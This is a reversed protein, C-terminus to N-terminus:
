FLIEIKGSHTGGFRRLSAQIKTALEPQKEALLKAALYNDHFLWYVKAGHYEPLLELSPDFLNTLFREGAQIAALISANTANLPSVEAQLSAAVLACLAASIVVIRRLRTHVENM